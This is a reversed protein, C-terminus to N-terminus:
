KNHDVFCMIVIIILIIVKLMDHYDTIQHGVQSDLFYLRGSGLKFM